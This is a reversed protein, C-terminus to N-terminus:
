RDGETLMTVVVFMILFIIGFDLFTLSTTISPGAIM